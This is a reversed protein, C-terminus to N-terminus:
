RTLLVTGNFSLDKVNIVHYYRGATAPEGSATRGDWTINYGQSVFVKEGWRDMIQMETCPGLFAETDMTFVDNNGDGNTTFINPVEIEVM